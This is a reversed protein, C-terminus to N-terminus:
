NKYSLFTEILSFTSIISWRNLIRTVSEKLDFLMRFFIIFTVDYNASVVDDDFKKSATTKKRDFETVPGLKTGIDNSIRFSHCNKNILFKVLVRFDSIGGM